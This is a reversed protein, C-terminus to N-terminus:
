AAAVIVPPMALGTHTLLAILRELPFQHLQVLFIRGQTQVVEIVQDFRFKAARALPYVTLHPKGADKGDSAPGALDCGVGLAQKSFTLM